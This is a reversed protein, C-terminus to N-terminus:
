DLVGLVRIADLADDHRDDTCLGHGPGQCDPGIPSSTASARLRYLSENDWVSKGAAKRDLSWIVIGCRAELYFPLYVIRYTQGEGIQSLSPLSVPVIV